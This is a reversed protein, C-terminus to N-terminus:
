PRGTSGIAVCTRRCSWLLHGLVATTDAVVVLVVAEVLAPVRMLLLKGGSTEMIVNDPAAQGAERGLSEGVSVLSSAMASLKNAQVRSALTTTLTFGDGTALTVSGIGPSMLQLKYMQLDCVQLLRDRLLPSSPVSYM